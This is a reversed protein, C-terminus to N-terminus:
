LMAERFVISGLALGTGVGIGIAAAIVFAETARAGGSIYDGNLIDRLANTFALGPVLAMIAGAIIVELNVNISLLSTLGMNCFSLVFTMLMNMVFSNLKMQKSLWMGLMLILGNIASIVCDAAGGGLLVCFAPPMLIYCICKIWGPNEIKEAKKLLQMAEDVSIDDGCLRRSIDNVEAIIGLNNRRSRIRRILVEPEEGPLELSAFIGTTVVYVNIIGGSKELIRRMTDEVRLTEAGSMLMLEGAYVAAEMLKKVM